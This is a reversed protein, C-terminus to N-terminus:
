NRKFKLIFILINESRTVIEHLLDVLDFEQERLKKTEKDHIAAQLDEVIEILKYTLNQMNTYADHEVQQKIFPIDIIENFEISKSPCINKFLNLIHELIVYIWDYNKNNFKERVMDWYAKESIKELDHLNFVVPKYNKINSTFEKGGIKMATKLINQRCIQLCKKSENIENTLVSQKLNYLTIGMNHYRYFLENKLAINDKKKWNRFLLIIEPLLLTDKKQFLIKVKDLLLQNINKGFIENPFKYIMWLALFERSKIDHDKVFNDTLKIVKKNQIIKSVDRFSEGVEKLINLITDM